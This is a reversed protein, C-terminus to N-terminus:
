AGPEGQPGQPGTAGVANLLVEIIDGPATAAEEAYGIIQTTGTDDVTGTALQRVAANQAIAGGAKLFVTGGGNLLRVAVPYGAAAANATVGIAVDTAPTDLVVVNNGSKKVLVYPVIAATSIYSKVTGEFNSAM